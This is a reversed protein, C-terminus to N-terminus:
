NIMTLGGKVVLMGDGKVTTMPAKLESMGTGELKLMAGKM